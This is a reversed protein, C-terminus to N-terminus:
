SEVAPVGHLSRYPLTGLFILTVYFIADKSDLLGELLVRLPHHHVHLVPGEGRPPKM